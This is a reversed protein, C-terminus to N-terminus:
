GRGFSARGAFRDLNAYANLYAQQVTGEAEAEDRVIARAIRYLRRNYRRMLIEFLGVEGALVGAVVEGDTLSQGEPREMEQLSQTATRGNAAIVIWYLAL